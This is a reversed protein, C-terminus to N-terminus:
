NKEDATLIDKRIPAHNINPNYAKIKPLESPIGQKIAQHFTNM